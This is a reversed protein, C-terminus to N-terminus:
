YCKGLRVIGATNDMQAMRQFCGIIRAPVVKRKEALQGPTKPRLQTLAVTAQCRKFARTGVELAELFFEERFMYVIENFNPRREPNTDCCQQLIL